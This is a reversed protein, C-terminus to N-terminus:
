NGQFQSAVYLAAGICAAFMAWALIEELIRQWRPIKM